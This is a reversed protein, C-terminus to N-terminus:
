ESESKERTDIRFISYLPCFGIISTFIFVAAVVLLIVALWGDVHGTFYLVVVIIAAIIRFIKDVIGVNKKMALTKFFVVIDYCQNM